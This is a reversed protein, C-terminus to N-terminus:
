RVSVQKLSVNLIRVVASVACIWHRMLHHRWVAMSNGYCTEPAVLGLDLTVLFFWAVIALFLSMFVASSTVRLPVLFAFALLAGIPASEHLWLSAPKITSWLWKGCGGSLVAKRLLLLLMRRGDVWGQHINVRLPQNVRVVIQSGIVEGGTTLRVDLKIGDWINVIVAL